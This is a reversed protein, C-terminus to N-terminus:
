ETHAHIIDVRHKRAISLLPAAVRKDFLRDSVIRLHNRPISLYHVLRVASFCSFSAPDFSYRCWARESRRPAWPRAVLVYVSVGECALAAASDYIYNGEQEGPSNPFWPTFLLVSKM